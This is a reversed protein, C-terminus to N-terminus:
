VVVVIMVIIRLNGVATTVLWAQVIVLVPAGWLSANTCAHVNSPREARRQRNIHSTPLYGAVSTWLMHAVKNSREWRMLKSQM